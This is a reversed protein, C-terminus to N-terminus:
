NKILKKQYVYPKFKRIISDDLIQYKILDDLTINKNFERFAIIKKAKDEGIYPHRKLYYESVKGLEIKKIKNTDIFFNLEIKRIVDENIGSIEKLQNFSYFGGLYNRFNIIRESVSEDNIVKVLNFKHIQNLDKKEIKKLNSNKEILLDTKVILYPKLLNYISDNIGYLKKFDDVKYFKGGHKRYNIWSKELTKPLNLNQILSDPINNIDISGIDNIVKLFNKSPLIKTLSDSNTKIRLNNTWELFENFDNNSNFNNKTTRNLIYFRIGLLIVIILILSIFGNKERNNLKLFDVFRM